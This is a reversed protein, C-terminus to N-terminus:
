LMCKLITSMNGRNELPVDYEDILLIVKKGYHKYLLDTLLKLSEDLQGDHRTITKLRRYESIDDSDLIDSTELFNLRKAERRIEFALKRIASHYDLGETDKLSVSVVPYKGMHAEVLDRDDMISLGDFLSPESGIEFFCKIMSMALTKGFRRPRTFLAVPCPNELFRKILVTKDIYAYGKERLAKFDEIGASIPIIESM